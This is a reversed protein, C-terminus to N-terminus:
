YYNDHDQYGERAKKKKKDAALELRVTIVERIFDTNLRQQIFKWEWQFVSKVPVKGPHLSLQFTLLVEPQAKM